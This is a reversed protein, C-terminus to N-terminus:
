LRGRRHRGGARRQPATGVDVRDREVFLAERRQLTVVVVGGDTQQLRYQRRIRFFLFELLAHAQVEVDALTLGGGALEGVVIESRSNAAVSAIL